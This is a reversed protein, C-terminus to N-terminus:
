RGCTAMMDNMNQEYESNLKTLFSWAVDGKDNPIDRNLMVAFGKYAAALDYCGNEKLIKCIAHGDAHGDFKNGAFLKIAAYLNFDEMMRHDGVYYMGDRLVFCKRYAMLTYGYSMDIIVDTVIAPKWRFISRVFESIKM